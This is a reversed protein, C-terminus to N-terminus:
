RCTGGGRVGVKIPYKRSGCLVSHELIHPVGRSNAVPTRCGVVPVSYLCVLWGTLWDSILYFGALRWLCACLRQSAPRM